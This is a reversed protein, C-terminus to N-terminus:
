KAGRAFASAGLKLFPDYSYPQGDITMAVSYQYQTGAPDGSPANFESSWQGGPIKVPAIQPNQGGIANGTFGTIKINDGPNIAAVAWNVTDDQNLTTILENGAELTGLYKTTDMMYLNNALSGSSTAGVVDVVILVNVTAM